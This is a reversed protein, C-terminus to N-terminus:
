SSDLSPPITKASAIPVARPQAVILAVAAMAAIASLVAGVGFLLAYGAADAIGGSLVAGTLYAAYQACTLISFDTGPQDRSAVTMFLSFLVVLEGYRLVTLMAAAGFLLQFGSIWGTAHAVFVLCALGRMAGTLGLCFATGRARLLWVLVLAGALGAVAASVGSLLAITDLAVRADVLYPAEMPMVLGEGGRFVLAIWLVRRTEPRQLFDLISALARTKRNVEKEQMVPVACLPLLSLGAVGLVMGSWGLRHYLLLGVSGGLIVGLAAAGVRVTNGIARQRPPLVLTAYGDSAIDQTALLVAIGGAIPIFGTIEGPRILLLALLAGVVGFQTLVIWSARHARAVPALRDIRPAWLFKIVGPVALLGLYGLVTRSVGAQRLIPPIAILLFSTPIAQALYLAGLVLFLHPQRPATSRGDIRVEEDTADCYRRLTTRDPHRERGM